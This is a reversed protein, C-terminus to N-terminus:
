SRKRLESGSKLVRDGDEQRIAYAPEEASANRTVEKGKIKHTVKKTYKKQVTGCATGAGWSWEVADGEEWDAM